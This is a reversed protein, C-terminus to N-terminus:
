FTLAIPVDRKAEEPFMINDLKTTTGRSIIEAAYRGPSLPVYQKAGSHLTAVHEGGRILKVVAKRVKKGGTRVVVRVKCWPFSVEQRSQAGPPLEVNVTRTPRDALATKDTVQVQITYSGSRVSFNQGASGEAVTEGVENAIKIRGPVAQGAVTATVTISATGSAPAAVPEEEMVPEPEPAVSEAAAVPENMPELETPRPQAAGCGWSILCLFIARNRM